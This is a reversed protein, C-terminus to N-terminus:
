QDLVLDHTAHDRALVDRRHLFPNFLSHEVTHETTVGYDVYFDIDNVATIVFDIGVLESEFHRRDKSHFITEFLTFRDQELRDHFHFVTGRFLILAIDDTVQIAPSRADVADLRAAIEGDHVRFNRERFHETVGSGDARKGFATGTVRHFRRM